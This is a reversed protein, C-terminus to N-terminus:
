ALRKWNRHGSRRSVRQSELGHLEVAVMESGNTRVLKTANQLAKRNGSVFWLLFPAVVAARSLAFRWNLWSMLVFMGFVALIDIV